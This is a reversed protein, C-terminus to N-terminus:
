QNVFARVLLNLDEQPLELKENWIGKTVSYNALGGKGYVVGALMGLVGFPQGNEVMEKGGQFLEDVSGQSVKFTDGTASELAQLIQNQTATFSNIYVHQNKVLEPRELCTTIARGVQDLSTAEYPISGGNYITVTRNPVDWGAFGPIQLGWDFMSGSVIATWSIEAEKSRLYDLTALKDSLFPLYKPAARDSTDVGYESPIFLKVGAAIAADIFSTQLALDGDPTISSLTSVVADQGAFAAALSSASMDTRLHRVGTPLTASSTQRTLGTVEFHSELLAKVASKGVNGSAGVVVVKKISAMAFTQTPQTYFSDPATFDDYVLSTKMRLYFKYQIESSYGDSSSQYDVM